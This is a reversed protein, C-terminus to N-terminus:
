SNGAVAPIVEAALDRRQSHHENLERLRRYSALGEEEAAQKQEETDKVTSFSAPGPM